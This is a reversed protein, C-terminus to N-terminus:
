TRIPKGSEVDYEIFKLTKSNHKILSSRWNSTVESLIQLVKEYEPEDSYENLKDALSLCKKLNISSCTGGCKLADERTVCLEKLEKKIEKM